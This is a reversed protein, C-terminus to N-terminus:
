AFRFLLIADTQQLNSGTVVVEVFSVSVNSESESTSYIQEDHTEEVTGREKRKFTVSLNRTTLEKFASNFGM